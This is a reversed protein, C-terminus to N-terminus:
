SMYVSEQILYNTLDSYSPMMLEVNRGERYTICEIVHLLSEPKRPIFNICEFELLLLVVISIVKSLTLVPHRLAPIVCEFVPYSHHVCM